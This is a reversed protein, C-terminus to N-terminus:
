VPDAQPPSDPAVARVVSDKPLGALHSADNFRALRWRSPREGPPHRAVLETISTNLTWLDFGGARPLGLVHRFVVDIVGGHCSVLATTGATADVLREWADIVRDHFENLTESGPWWRRDPQGDDPRGYRAVIEEFRLGDADGPRLEQWADDTVLDVVDPLAPLLVQATELARPLPSSWVAEPYGDHGAAIRDALREAQLRGLPSLGTCAREGAMLRSFTANSEGHRVLLIRTTARVPPSAGPASPTSM